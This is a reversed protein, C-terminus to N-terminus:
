YDQRWPSVVGVNLSFISALLTYHIYGLYVMYIKIIRRITDTVFTLAESLTQYVSRLQCKECEGVGKACVFGVGVRKVSVLVSIKKNSDNRIALDGEM